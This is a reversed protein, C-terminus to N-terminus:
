NRSRRVFTEDICFLNDHLFKEMENDEVSVVYYLAASFLTSRSVHAAKAKEDLTKLLEPSATFSTSKKRTM